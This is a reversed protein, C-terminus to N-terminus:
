QVRRVNNAGGKSRVNLGSEKLLYLITPGSVGIKKAIQNSSMKRVHYMEYLLSKISTHELYNLIGTWDIAM